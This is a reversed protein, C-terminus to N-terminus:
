IVQGIEDKSCVKGRKEYLHSLLAFEKSSLEVLVM